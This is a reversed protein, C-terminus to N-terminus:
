NKRRRHRKTHKRTRKAKTMRRRKSSGGVEEELPYNETCMGEGNNLEFHCGLEKKCQSEYLGACEIKENIQSTSKLPTKLEPFTIDYYEKLIKMLGDVYFNPEIKNIEKEFYPMLNTLIEEANKEKQKRINKEKKTDILEIGKTYDNILNQVYKGNAVDMPPFKLLFAFSDCLIKHNIDRFKKHKIVSSMLKKIKSNDFCKPFDIWGKRNVSMIRKTSINPNKVYLTRPTRRTLTMYM